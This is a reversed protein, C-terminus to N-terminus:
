HREDVDEENEDPIITDEVDKYGFVFSVGWTFAAVIVLVGLAVVLPITCLIKGVLNLRRVSTQPGIKYSFTM